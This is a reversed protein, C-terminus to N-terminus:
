KKNLATKVWGMGAQLPALAEFYTAKKISYVGMCKRKTGRDLALRMMGRSLLIYNKLLQEFAFCHDRLIKSICNGMSKQTQKLGLWFHITAVLFLISFM